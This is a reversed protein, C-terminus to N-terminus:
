RLKEFFTQFNRMLVFKLHFRSKYASDNTFPAKLPMKDCRPIAYRSQNISRGFSFVSACPSRNENELVGAFCPLV